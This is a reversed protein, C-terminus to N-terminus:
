IVEVSTSRPLGVVQHGDLLFLDFGTPYRLLKARARWFQLPLGGVRLDVIGDVGPGSLRLNQGTGIEARIVVTAGDDPYLDSGLRFGNLMDLDSLQGLFVHDAESLEAINAGTRMIQSILRPDTSHVRCERDILAEIIPTEGPEPLERIRGPRSLTWLLADFSANARIEAESRHPVSLM